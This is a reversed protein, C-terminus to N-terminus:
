RFQFFVIINLDPDEAKTPSWFFGGFFCVVSFSYCLGQYTMCFLFIMVTVILIMVRGASIERYLKFSCQNLCAKYGTLSRIVTQQYEATCKGPQIHLHPDGPPNYRLSVRARSVTPCNLIIIECLSVRLPLTLNTM